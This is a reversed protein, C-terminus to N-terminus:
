SRKELYVNPSSLRDIEDKIPGTVMLIVYHYFRIYEKVSELKLLLLNFTLFINVSMFNCQLLIEQFTPKLVIIIEIFKLSPEVPRHIM